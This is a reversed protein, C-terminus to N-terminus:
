KPIWLPATVLAVPLIVVDAMLALPPLLIREVASRRYTKSVTTKVFLLHTDFPRGESYLAFWLRHRDIWPWLKHTVCGVLVLM